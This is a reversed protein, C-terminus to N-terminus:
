VARVESVRVGSPNTTPLFFFEGPKAYSYGAPQQFTDASVLYQNYPVAQAAPLPATELTTYTTSVKISDAPVTSETGYKVTGNGTEAYGTSILQHHQSNRLEIPPSYTAATTTLQVGGPQTVM